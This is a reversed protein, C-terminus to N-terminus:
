GMLASLGLEPSILINGVPPIAIFLSELMRITEFLCFCLNDISHKLGICSTRTKPIPNVKIPQPSPSSAPIARACFVPLSKTAGVTNWAAPGSM